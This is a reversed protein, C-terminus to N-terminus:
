YLGKIGSFQKPDEEMDSRDGVCHRCWFRNSPDYSNKVRLLEDYVPQSWIRERWEPLDYACENQYVHEGLDEYFTNMYDKDPMDDFIFHFMADRFAPSISVRSERPSDKASTLDHYFQFMGWEKRQKMRDTAQMVKRKFDGSEVKERSVLVSPSANPGYFVPIINVAPNPQAFDAPSGKTPEYMNPYETANYNVDYLFKLSKKLRQMDKEADEKPGYYWYNFLVGWDAGCHTWGAESAGM